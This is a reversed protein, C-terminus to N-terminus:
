QVILRKFYRNTNGSVCILYTGKTKLKNLPITLFYNDSEILTNTSYHLKGALDTLEVLVTNGKEGEIILTTSNDGAPNPYLNISASARTHSAITKLCEFNGNFDTQKLRYYSLGNHPSYDVTSYYVPVVSNGSGNITAIDKFVLGDESRQVTFFNNNNETATLWNLYVHGNSTAASFQLLTVPLTVNSTNTTADVAGSTTLTRGEIHTGSRISIAGIHCVLTGKFYSSDMITALGEIKWYVNKAQAGNRLVVQAHKGTSFAGNVKIVFVAASNNQADLFLTDTMVTAANLFYVRSTLVMSNGFTGPNTLQSDHPLSDLYTFLLGLDTACQATASNPSLHVTGNVLSTDFGTVAGSNSGVDGTLVTNGTNTVAGSSSFLVFNITSGLPPSQAFLCASWLVSTFTLLFYRSFPNM